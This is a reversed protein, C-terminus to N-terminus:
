ELETRLRAIEQTLRTKVRTKLRSVSREKLDLKTAIEKITHGQLSLQFVELAHGSFFPAINQMALNSIHIKWQTETLEDIEPLRISKLYATNEDEAAKKLRVDEREKKRIMDIVCNKTITAIMNRFRMKKNLEISPLKNWLKLLVEQSLDDADHESINMRRILAYIFRNYTKYFEGWSEEDCQQQVRQILTKRTKYPDDM